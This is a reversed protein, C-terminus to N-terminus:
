RAGLGVLQLGGFVEEFKELGLEGPDGGGKEKSRGLGVGLPLLLWAKGGVFGRNDFLLLFWSFVARPLKRGM